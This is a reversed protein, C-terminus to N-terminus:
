NRWARALFATCQGTWSWSLCLAAPIDRQLPRACRNVFDLSFDRDPLEHRAIPPVQRNRVSLFGLGLEVAATAAGLYGTQSKLATVPLHTGLVSALMVAECRDGLPTGIGHAIVFDLTHEGVAERIAAGAVVPSKEAEIRDSAGTSCSFGAIEGQIPAGRAQADALRELVLIGAAEALVVGDRRRDFPRFAESPSAASLLDMSEYALYTSVNMLSDYGGAVAADCRDEILDYCASAIAFASATESQVFNGSPGTAGLETSLLGVGANSLTRLSFYPDILRSARGGLRKYDSDEGQSWALAVAPFFESSELGTEGSGMYVGIRRPDLRGLDIQSAAVAEKTARVACLVSKSMFKQNKPVRLSSSVDFDAIEAASTCAHGSV